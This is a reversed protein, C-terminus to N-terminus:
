QSSIEFKSGADGAFVISGGAPLEVQDKGGIVSFYDCTGEANYVAFSANSSMSVKVIKGGDKDSITYWQAYGSSPIKVISKKAVKIPKVDVENVLISEGIKLYEVGDQKFFTYSSLDRGSMGPIQLESVATNPGTIRKDLVYGPLQKSVNLLVPPMALYVISTYKESLLYFKKGDRQMWAKKTKTPLDQPQLKEVNYVSMAMQGLGPLSAYQRIWLYTSGNEKTVFSIMVNGDESRFTGDTSYKYIQTPNEPSQESTISMVGGETIDINVTTGSAGYIGSNQLVSKPMEAKVPAGYSKEPKFDAIAGKEKLAQLLIENALLQDTTSTGGSTVVAAALDLEPLVVLSAHYLVTDGGKTLAKIGYEKFPYLNVSDWGLGYEISNDADDPWLPTKYEEQAMAKASIGSLVGEEEGTFIQSFRALDEATSYIGGAGIVNVSENPLQGNYSPYYVEAMKAENPSDLPTETNAMGLPETINRHIYSTFDMGSVREILIEALTFGDNCYVSYAGPDAKLTQGALQKLLTDHAYTDNDEFLAANTMSSGNLGSSHNLLMRPTIQKFRDDKMTFEPIYQVVPTDLDIKGQDVLQMVAVATFMKSTSGIGYMTDKTLSKLGQEDNKSSQGSVVIHGHDILAYQVSNTDYTTTLLDASAKAAKQTVEYTILAENSPSDVAASPVTIPVASPEIVQSTNLTVALNQTEAPTKNDDCSTLLLCSSLVAGM